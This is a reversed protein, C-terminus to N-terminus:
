PCSKKRVRKRRTFLCLVLMSLFYTAQPGTQLVKNNGSFYYLMVVFQAFIAVAFPNTGKLTELWSLALRRGILFVV